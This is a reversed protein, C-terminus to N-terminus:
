TSEIERLEIRGFRLHPCSRSIEIAEAYDAAEIQFYGGIIENTEVYPGDSVTGGSLHKGGEDRLKQGGTLKGAAGMAKRWAVYEGIIAQIETPSANAFTAPTEWLLMVFQSMSHEM